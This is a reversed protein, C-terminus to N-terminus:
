EARSRTPQYNEPLAELVIEAKEAVDYKMQKGRKRKWASLHM